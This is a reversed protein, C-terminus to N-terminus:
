DIANCLLQGLVTGVFSLVSQVLCSWASDSSLCRCQRSAGSSHIRTLDHCGQTDGDNWEYLRHRVIPLKGRGIYTFMEELEYDRAKAKPGSRNNALAELAGEKAM